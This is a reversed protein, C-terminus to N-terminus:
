PAVAGGAKRYMALLDALKHEHQGDGAGPLSAGISSVAKIAEPIKGAQILPLARRERIQQLAILDQSMPSFDKLGLSKRYADYYRRLLQYRGAATSQIKLKPLDVLVRPHDRYGNFLKGGVIVDYGRDKTVQKGNDTGESWALMDLFAVVNVGGAQQATIQAM